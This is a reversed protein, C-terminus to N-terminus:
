KNLIKNLDIKILPLVFASTNNRIPVNMKKFKNNYLVLNDNEKFVFFQLNINDSLAKAFLSILLQEDNIYRKMDMLQEVNPVFIDIVADEVDKFIIKKLKSNLDSSINNLPGYYLAESPCLIMENDNLRLMWWKASTMLFSNKNYTYYLKNDYTSFGDTVLYAPCKENLSPIRGFTILFKDDVKRVDLLTKVKELMSEDDSFVPLKKGKLTNCLNILHKNVDNIDPVLYLINKSFYKSIKELRSQPMNQELEKSSCDKLELFVNRIIELVSLGYPSILIITFTPDNKYKTFALEIEKECAESKFYNSSLYFIVGKCNQSEIVGRVVEDWKDGANLEKDYWFNVHNEYLFSLDNYVINSDNHSYSIFMYHDCSPNARRQSLLNNEPM